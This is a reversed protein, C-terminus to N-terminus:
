TRKLFKWRSFAYMLLGAAILMEQHESFGWLFDSYAPESPFWAALINKSERYLSAVIITFVSGFDPMAPFLKFSLGLHHQFVWVLPGVVFILLVIINGLHTWNIINPQTPSSNHFNTERSIHEGWWDPTDWAFFKQGWSIEEAAFFLSALAIMGVWATAEWPHRFWFQYSIYLLLFGASAGCAFTLIEIIQNERNNEELMYTFYFDPSLFFSSWILVILLLPLLAKWRDTSPINFTGSSSLWFLDQPTNSIM